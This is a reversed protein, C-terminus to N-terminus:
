GPVDGQRVRGMVVNMGSSAQLLNPIDVLRASSTSGLHRDSDVHAGEWSVTQKGYPDAEGGGYLSAHM